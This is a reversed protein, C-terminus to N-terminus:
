YGRIEQAKDDQGAYFIDDLFKQLDYDSMQRVEECSTDFFGCDVQSKQIIKDSIFNVQFEQLGDYLISANEALEAASANEAIDRLLILTNAYSKNEERDVCVIEKSKRIQM